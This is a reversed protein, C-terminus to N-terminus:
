LCEYLAGGTRWARLTGHHVFCVCIRVSLSSLYALLDFTYEILQLDHHYTSIHRTKSTKCELTM